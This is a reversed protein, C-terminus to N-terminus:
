GKTPLEEPYVPFGDPKEQFFFPHYVLSGGYDVCHGLENCLTWSDGIQKTYVIEKM